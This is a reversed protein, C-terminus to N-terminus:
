AKEGSYKFLIRIISGSASASSLAKGLIAQGATAVIAGGTADTSVEAGVAIASSARVQAIAGDPLVLPLVTDADSVTEGAIGDVVAGAGSPLALKGQANVSCFSYVSLAEGSILSVSRTSQNSSM